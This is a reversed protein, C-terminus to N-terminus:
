NLFLKLQLLLKPPQLDHPSIRELIALLEHKDLSQRQLQALRQLAPLLSTM